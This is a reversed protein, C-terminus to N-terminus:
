KHTDRQLEGKEVEPQRKMQININKVRPVMLADHRHINTHMHIALWTRPSVLRITMGLQRTETETGFTQSQRTSTSWATPSMNWQLLSNVQSVTERQHTREVIMTVRSRHVFSVRGLGSGVAGFAVEGEVYEMRM